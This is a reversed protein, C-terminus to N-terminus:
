FNVYILVHIGLKDIERFDPEGRIIVLNMYIPSRIKLM